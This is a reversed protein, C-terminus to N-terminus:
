NYRVVVLLVDALPAGDETKRTKAVRSSRMENLGFGCRGNKSERIAGGGCVGGNEFCGGFRENENGRKQIVEPTSCRLLARDVLRM